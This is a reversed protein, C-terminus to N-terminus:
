GPWAEWAPRPPSTLFFVRLADLDGAQVLRDEEEARAKETAMREAWEGSEVAEIYERVRAATAVSHSVEVKPRPLAAVYEDYSRHRKLKAQELMNDIDLLDQEWDGSWTNPDPPTPKFKPAPYKLELEGTRLKYKKKVGDKGPAFRMAAAFGKDAGIHVRGDELDVVAAGAAGAKYKYVDKVFDVHAEPDSMVELAKPHKMLRNGNEDEIFGTYESPAIPALFGKSQGYSRCNPPLEDPTQGQKATEGALRQIQKLLYSSVAEPSVAIQADFREGWGISKALDMLTDPARSRWSKVAEYREKSKFTKPDLVGHLRDNEDDRKRLVDAIASCAVIAHLHPTGDKHDERVWFYGMKTIGRRRLRQNIADVWRKWMKGLMKNNQERSAKKHLHGPLTFTLFCLNAPDAQSLGSKPSVMRAFLISAWKDSCWGRHRRSKCRYRAQVLRGTKKCVLNITWRNNHCAHVYSPANEDPEVPPNKANRARMKDSRDDGFPFESIRDLREQDKRAWEADHDRQRAEAIRESATQAGPLPAVGPPANVRVPSPACYGRGLPASTTKSVLPFVAAGRKVV